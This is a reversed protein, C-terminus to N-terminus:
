DTMNLQDWVGCWCLVFVIFVLFYLLFTTLPLGLNLFLRFSAPLFLLQLYLLWRFPNHSLLSSLNFSSSFLRTTISSLSLFWSLRYSFNCSFTASFLLSYFLSSTSLSLLLFFNLLLLGFFILVLLLFQILFLFFTLLIFFNLLLRFVLFIITFFLLFSRLFLFSRVFFFFAFFLLRLFFLIFYHLLFVALQLRSLIIIDSPIFVGWHILKINGILLLFFLKCM